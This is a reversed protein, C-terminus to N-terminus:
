AMKLYFERTLQVFAASYQGQQRITLAEECHTAQPQHCFELLRRSVPKHPETRILCERTLSLGQQQMLRTFEQGENDPLIFHARGQNDLLAATKQALVQHNLSQSHRALARQENQACDGSNFYPPNCILRDFSPQIDASQVDQHAASLRNAWPSRAFNARATDVAHQDIDIGHITLQPCQQALMLSLLGTGTGIDLARGPQTPQIRGSWAGLLIGDTSIPM